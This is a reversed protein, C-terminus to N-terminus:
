TQTLVKWVVANRLDSDEIERTTKVSYAIVRELGQRPLYTRLPDGMLVLKGEGALGHLWAMFREAPGKEYCVDGAIVVDWAPDSEGVLDREAIELAVGNLEANLAIAAAAFSDIENAIVRAAGVKAAAIASLGSGSAFDLVCKDRVTEPHDLLYRALGQGGAWAFAWFPPPVGQEALEEESAQWLPVVESALHLEIEPLLPPREVKTNKLIFGRPDPSSV